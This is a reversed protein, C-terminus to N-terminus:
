CDGGYGGKTLSQGRPPRKGRQLNYNRVWDILVFSKQMETSGNGVMRMRVTMPIRPIAARARLSAVASGNVFWTIQKGTIQIAYLRDDKDSRGFGAVTKSWASKGANAQVRVTSGGVEARAITINHRGCNYLAPNEPILEVVFAYPEGAPADQAPYFRIRERLEWRGRKAAKGELELTTTGVDPAKFSQSVEGSHFELGGGYKVVRGTGTSHDVWWGGEPHAGRYADSTLSEGFEWAFDWQMAGWGYHQAATTGDAKAARAASTVSGPAQATGPALTAPGVVLVTALVALRAAFGNPGRM